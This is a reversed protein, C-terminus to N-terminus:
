SLAGAEIASLTARRDLVAQHTGRFRKVSIGFMLTAALIMGLAEIGFIGFYAVNPTLIETEILGTHLAGSSFSAAGNGLAQAMGWLGIYLGTAGEVTMDMMMSLAGVNFFGTFFGMFILAPNVLERSATLAAYAMIAMGMSTGFAGIIVIRRKTIRSVVSILGMIAMGALVAGGWTPQFQTTESVSMGFVEAGFVELINDQLFIAFISVFVFLGFARAQPNEKLVKYASVFPNGPPTAAKAEAISKELADGTLRKEMGIIGLFASGLVIFPTLSYLTQMAEPSYEPRVVNMLVAAFISSMIAVTQVVAMIGGRSQPRTSEAILAHHSDGFMAIGVGYMALLGFGSRFLM